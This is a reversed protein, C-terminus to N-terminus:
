PATKLSAEISIRYDKMINNCPSVFVSFSLDYIGRTRWVERWSYTYGRRTIIYVKLVGMSSSGYMNYFFRMTCVGRSIPFSASNLLRARDYARRPSSSDIFLFQGNGTTHDGTPGTGAGGTTKGRQWNFDDYYWNYWKCFGKEFNCNSTRSGCISAAEDTGDGCDDVFDCVSQPM